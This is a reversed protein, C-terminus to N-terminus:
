YEGALFEGDPFVDFREAHVVGEDVDAPPHLVVERQGQAARERGLRLLHRVHAGRAAGRAVEERVQVVDAGPDRADERVRAREVLRDDHPLVLHRLALRLLQAHPIRAIPLREPLLENMHTRGGELKVNQTQSASKCGRVRRLELGLGECAEDFFALAFDGCVRGRGACLELDGPILVDVAHVHELLVRERM